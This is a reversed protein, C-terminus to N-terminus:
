RYQNTKLATSPKIPLVSDGYIPAFFQAGKQEQEYCYQVISQPSVKRICNANIQQTSEDWCNFHQTMAKAKSLASGKPESGLYSDVSGSQMIARQFLTSKTLILASVSMSGASEGFITVSHPDGAFSDINNQVFKLANIIDVLAQNGPADKSGDYLFGFASLRYNVEVVVVDGIASLYTANFQQSFISGTIFAGGYIWFMVSKKSVQNISAMQFTSISFCVTRMSM